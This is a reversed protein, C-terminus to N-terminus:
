GRLGHYVLQSFIVLVQHPSQLFRIVLSGLEVRADEEELLDVLLM